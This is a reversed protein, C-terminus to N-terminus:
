RSKWSDDGAPWFHPPGHIGQAFRARIYDVFRQAQLSDWTRSGQASQGKPIDPRVNPPINVAKRGFYWFQESILVFVGSLDKEKNSDCHSRNPIQEFDSSTTPNCTRPRYINDGVSYICERKSLDPIKAQFHPDLYYDAIPIKDTVKMLYILREQGVEDDCLKKSTFGAIWDGIEKSRRMLPKCTAVTLVGFFPNPAFGSDTDLKYCFLRM